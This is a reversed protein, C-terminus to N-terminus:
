AATIRESLTRLTRAVLNRGASARYEATAQLDTKLDLEQMASQGVEMFDLEALTKGVMAAETGLSRVASSGVGLWSLRAAAIRGADMELRAVLGVLAFDGPRRYIEDIAILSNPGPLPFHVAVMIDEPELATMYPGLIFDSMPVRRAGSTSHLEVEADMALAFAPYEAAPDSLSLSGGVTGRSRTQYHGVYGTVDRFVPLRSAVIPDSLIEAQRTMAGVTLAGNESIGRLDAIRNLDVLVAPRALRLALMPVLSQGGALLTADYGHQEMLSLAESLSEPREYDFAAPKIYVERLTNV